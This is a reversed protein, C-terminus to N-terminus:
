LPVAARPLGAFWRGVVSEHSLQWRPVVLQPETVIFWEATTGPVHTVQWL